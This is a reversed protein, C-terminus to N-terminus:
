KGLILRAFKNAEIEKEIKTIEDESKGANRLLKEFTVPISSGHPNEYEPLQHTYKSLEWEDKSGHEEFIEDLLKLERKSLEDFDPAEVLIVDYGYLNKIYKSWYPTEIRKRLFDMLGSGALGNDFSYLKDGTVTKKWRILAEKDLLYLLKLLKMYNMRKGGKLLLYSAAQTAKNINLDFQIM